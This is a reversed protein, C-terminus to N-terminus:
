LTKIHFFFTTRLKVLSSWGNRRTTHVLKYISSKEKREGSRTTFYTPFPFFLTNEEKCYIEEERRNKYGRWAITPLTLKKREGYFSIYQRYIKKKKCSSPSTVPFYINDNFFFSSFFCMLTFYGLLSFVPLLLLITHYITVSPSSVSSFYTPLWSFSSTYIKVTTRPFVTM